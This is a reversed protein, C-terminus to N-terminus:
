TIARLRERLKAATGAFLGAYRYLKVRDLKRIKSRNWREVLSVFHEGKRTAFYIRDVVAKEPDALRVERGQVTVLGYGRFAEPTVSFYTFTGHYNVFRKTTGSTVSTVQAAVDPILGHQFMATELSVYSPEYLRNAVFLDPLIVPDPWALEFVGRKLRRVWGRRAWQHLQLNALGRDGTPVLMALDRTTFLELGSSRM